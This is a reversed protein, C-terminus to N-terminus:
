SEGEIVAVLQEYDSVEYTPVIEDNRMALNFNYWITDMNALNGGLIDSQLNDGIMVARRRDDIGLSQCAIDFMAPDPKHAGIEESIFVQEMYPVIPSKDLRGHQVQAMGNTVVAMRYGKNHLRQVLELAGPFLISKTALATKYASNMACFDVDERGMCALFHRFRGEGIEAADLTGLDRRHWMMANVAEYLHVTVPLTDIGFRELVEVIALSGAARFDFLTEDADFLLWDYRRGM